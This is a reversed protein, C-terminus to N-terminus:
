AVVLEDVWQFGLGRVKWTEFGSGSVNFGMGVLGSIGGIWLCGGGVGRKGVFTGSAYRPYLRGRVLGNGAWLYFSAIVGLGSRNGPNNGFSDRSGSSCM